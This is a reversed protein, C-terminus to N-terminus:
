ATSPLDAKGIKLVQKVRVPTGIVEDNQKLAAQLVQSSGDEFVALLNNRCV